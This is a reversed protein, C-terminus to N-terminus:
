DNDDIFFWNDLLCVILFIVCVICDHNVIRNSKQPLCYYHNPSSFLWWNINHDLRKEEGWFFSILCNKDPNKTTTLSSNNKSETMSICQMSKTQFIPSKIVFYLLQKVKKKTHINACILLPLPLSLHSIYMCLCLGPTQSIVKGIKKKDFYLCVDKPWFYFIDLICM